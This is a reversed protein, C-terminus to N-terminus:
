GRHLLGKKARQKTEIREVESEIDGLARLIHKYRQYCLSQWLKELLLLEESYEDFPPKM